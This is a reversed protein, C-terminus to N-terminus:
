PVLFSDRPHSPTEDGNYHSIKEAPLWINDPEIANDRHAIPRFTWDVSCDATLMNQGRRRHMRSPATPRQDADFAVQGQSVVFLPNKDALLGLNPCRDMRIPEATYQNQYSYSVAKVSPWDHHQRTMREPHAHPNSPCALKDPSIYHKRVLLYLHAANSHVTGEKDRPEGVDWWRAGEKIQDRPLLGNHDSAYQQIATGAAKLNTQCAIQQAMHQNQALVPLLLSVAILIVGAVTLVQGFGGGPKLTGGGAGDGAALMQAQETLRQSEEAARIRELTRDVLAQDGAEAPWQDLLTLVQELQQDRRAADAPPAQAQPPDLRADLRQGDAPSLQRIRRPNPQDSSAM